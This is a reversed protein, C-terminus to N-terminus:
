PRPTPRAFGVRTMDGWGSTGRLYQMLGRIRWLNNLQRYGFNELVAAATLVALHRARPFRRLEVEELILSGVSIVVGFNFTVALFALLYDASLLGLGWMIPILVYGLIEVIPGLVDVLFMHGFAVAGIRGYRPRMLMDRHKFFAELAGRQWRSRQRGLIKLSEPAETWCVPEPTFVIRYPRRIDRMYRHFKVVLELDEGVTKHSYGGVKIAIQRSFIGFAGSIITLTQVQSWALRAMLFARLYEVVQFLALLNRPLGIEVVRGASIRCGNALRITGGVAITLEPEDIFPQVARLLADPEILSDADISCFLPSRSLNIGANLADAKGGNVKDIVLLQPYRPSGFLGRIQQHEVALDFSRQVPTLEFADLVARLTNDKSGDNIVIVEFNPYHLALLSRINEVISLEENYAPALLAIPPAVDVYRRWLLSERAYPPSAALAWAALGLQVGYVLNQLLGTGIVFAAIWHAAEVLAADPVSTL